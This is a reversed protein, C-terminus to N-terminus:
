EEDAIYFSVFCFSVSMIEDVVFSVFLCIMMMM